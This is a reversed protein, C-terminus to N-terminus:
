EKALKKFHTTGRRRKSPNSQQHFFDAIENKELAGSFYYGQAYDCGYEVLDIYQEQAEVGTCFVSCGAAKAMEISTQVVTDCFPDHQMHGILSIDINVFDIGERWVRSLANYSTGNNDLSVKAGLDRLRQLNNEGTQIDLVAASESISLVLSAPPFATESLQARLTDVASRDQLQAASLNVVLLFGDTVFDKFDKLATKLVFDGLIGMLGLSEAAALFTEPRQLVGNFDRWRVLAEVGTPLGTDLRVVPQYLVSFDKCGERVSRSLAREVDMRQSLGGELGRRFFVASNKGEYKAKYMAMDAHRLLEKADRGDKPFRSVGISITSYVSVGSLEWPRQFRGWINEVTSALTDSAVNELLIMFEDGGLRYLHEGIPDIARLADAIARLLQDGRQHGFSDNIMKFDDLDMFLLACTVNEGNAARKLILQLDHEFKRRNPINMLADYYALRQIMTETKRLETIDTASVILVMRGDLWPITNHSTFYVRDGHILECTYPGKRLGFGNERTLGPFVQWAYKLEHQPLGILKQCQANVYTIRLTDPDCTLVSLDLNYMVADFVSGSRMIVQEVRQYIVVNSILRLLIEYYERDQQFYLRAQQCAEFVIISVPEGDQFVPFYVASLVGTADFSAQISPPPPNSQDYIFLGESTYPVGDNTEHFRARHEWPIAEVGDACWEYTITFLGSLKKELVYARSFRQDEGVCALIGNMTESLSGANQTLDFIRNLLRQRSVSRSIKSSVQRALETQAVLHSSHAYNLAIISAMRNFELVADTFRKPDYLPMAEVLARMGDPDLGLARCSRRFTPPLQADLRVHGFIWVALVRDGRLTPIAVIELSTCRSRTQIIRKEAGAAGALTRLEQLFAGESTDCSLVLDVVACHGSPANLPGGYEDFALVYLDFIHALTDQHHQIRDAGVLEFLPMDLDPSTPSRELFRELRDRISYSEEQLSLLLEAQLGVDVLLGEMVWVGAQEVCQMYVQIPHLRDNNDRLSLTGTYRIGPQASGSLWARLEGRERIDFFDPFSFSSSLLSASEYGFVRVSKSIYTLRYPAGREFFFAVTQSRDLIDKHVRSTQLARHLPTEVQEVQRTYNEFVVLTALPRGDLACVSLTNSRIWFLRGLPDYRSIYQVFTPTQRPNLLDIPLCDDAKYLFPYITEGLEFARNVHTQGDSYIVSLPMSDLLNQAWAGARKNTTILTVCMAAVLTQVVPYADPDIAALGVQTGDRDTFQACCGEARLLCDRGGSDKWRLSLLGDMCGISANLSGEWFVSLSAPAHGALRKAMLANASPPRESAFVILPVPAADMHSVLLSYPDFRKQRM